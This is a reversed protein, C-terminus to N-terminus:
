EDDESFNINPRDPPTDGSARADRLRFVYAMVQAVAAYLRAPIEEGIETTAYLARALPPAELIPVRHAIAVKRIQQAILERGKAVVQPAAMNDDYKLAVAYHLPNTVIVDADPVQEMMRRRALEQQTQRIRSKVEPQGETEKNEDRVEQRTMRLKKAHDWLQFPVDVAAILILVSSMALLSLACLWATHALASPVPENSLMLFEGALQRLMLIAAATVVAFKALAKLLEVLSRLAFLRKFGAIPNLKEAKFALAKTSFSWGGLLTPAAIAVILCIVLFPAILILGERVMALFQASLATTDFITARPLTLGTRLIQAISRSMNDGLLFLSASSAVMIAAANLERSRPVQGKERADKIRKPTARETREQFQEEAM